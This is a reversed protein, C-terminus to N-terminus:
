VSGVCYTAWADMLERRKEFLDSRAYAREVENGTVHALAAEALERPFTTCEGCWDRFSSRFGHVTVDGHGIRELLNRMTKPPLPVGRKRASHFVLGDKGGVSDLVTLAPGSFPVRHEERAKMRDKPITWVKGDLDIEDWRAGFVEGARAATLITFELAHAAVGGQARLETMFAPLLAYPM